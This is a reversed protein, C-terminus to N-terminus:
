DPRDSPLAKVMDHDKALLMKPMQKANVGIVVIAGFAGTTSYLSAPKAHRPIMRDCIAQALERRIAGGSGGFAYALQALGPIKLLNVSNLSLEHLRLEIRKGFLGPRETLRVCFCRRIRSHRETCV